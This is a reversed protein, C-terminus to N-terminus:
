QINQKLLKVSKQLDKECIAELINKHEAYSELLNQHRSYPLMMHTVIPIWIAILDEDEVKEVISRHFAMDHKVAEMMNGEECAKKFADLNDKWEMLDESQIKPFITKLCDSELQRRLKAILLHSKETPRKRVRVGRNPVAELLGEKTLQLLADRIPGRSVGYDRALKEERLPDGQNYNGSLVQSRLHEVIQERITKLAIPKNSM